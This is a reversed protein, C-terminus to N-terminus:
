TGLPPGDNLYARNGVERDVVIRARVFVLPEPSTYTWGRGRADYIVASFPITTQASAGEGTSTPAPAVEATEIGLREAARDTLTIRNVSTGEVAEVSAPEDSGEAGEDAAASCSALLLASVTLAAALGRQIRMRM